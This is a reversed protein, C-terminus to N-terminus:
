PGEGVLRADRGGIGRAGGGGGELAREREEAVVGPALALPRLRPGDAPDAHSERAVGLARAEARELARGHAHARGALPVDEDADRAPPVPAEGDPLPPPPLRTMALAPGATARGARSTRSRAARTAASSRSHAGSSTRM